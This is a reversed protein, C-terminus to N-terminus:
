RKGGNKHYCSEHFYRKVGGLRVWQADASRTNVEKGCYSCIYNVKQKSYIVTREEVVAM